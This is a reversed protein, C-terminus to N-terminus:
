LGFHSKLQNLLYEGKYNLRGFKKLTSLVQIGKNLLVSAREAEGTKMLALGYYCMLAAYDQLWSTNSPDKEVLKRMIHYGEESYKLETETDKMRQALMTIRSYAGVLDRHSEEISPDENLIKRAYKLHEEFYNKAKEFNEQKVALEGHKSLCLSLDRFFESGEESLDRFILLAQDYADQAAEFKSQYSYVDGIKDYSVALYRQHYSHARHKEILSQFLSKGENYAKLAADPQGQNFYLDGDLIKASAQDYLLTADGTGDETLEQILGRSERAHETAAQWDGKSMAQRSYESNAMSIVHKLDADNPFYGEIEKLRKIMVKLFSLKDDLPVSNELAPLLEKLCRQCWGKTIDREIDRRRHMIEEFNQSIDNGSKDYVGFTAEAWTLRELLRLGSKKVEAILTKTNAEIEKQHLGATSGYFTLVHFYEQAKILQWMLENCRLPDDNRLKILYSAFLKHLSITHEAKLSYYNLVAERLQEHFFDWRKLGGRIVLNFRFNRRLFALDISPTMVEPDTPRYNKDFRNVVRSMVTNFIMQPDLDKYGSKELKVIEPILVKLDKERWGNRSLTILMSFALVFERGHIKELRRLMWKYLEPPSSPFQRALDCKLAELKEEYNGTYEKQADQFDDADLLSLQESALIAWLPNSIALQAEKDLKQELIWVLSDLYPVSYSDWVKRILQRAEEISLRPITIEQLNKAKLLERLEEYQTSTAILFANEPWKQPLWTLYRAQSTLEFQNLADILIVVRKIASAKVLLKEFHEEIEDSNLISSSKGKIALFRELEGNWRNLMSDVNAGLTTGGPANKLLLISNDENLEKALKSFVASKGSGPPGILCIGPSKRVIPEPRALKRLKALISEQGVFNKSHMEIFEDLERQENEQWTTDQEKQIRGTEEEIESLLDSYVKEGWKELGIINNTKEDWTASYSHIKSALLNNSTLRNKLNKLLIQKESPKGNSDPLDVFDQRLHSPIKELPLTDRFYFLCRYEEKPKTKKLIYEIEFVTLSLISIDLDLDREAVARDLLNEPLTTGYRDGILGIFFPRSRDIEDLCVKLVRLERSLEDSFEDTKVGQRLDIIELHINRKRLEEELKPFVFGRLYDRESQMDLFTSSVFVSCTIWESM